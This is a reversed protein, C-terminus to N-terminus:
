PRARGPRKEKHHWVRIVVVENNQVMYRLVYNSAGFPVYLERRGTDDDMPRGMAGFQALQEGGQQITKVAREAAKPNKELLYDFLRRIDQQTEPLWRVSM